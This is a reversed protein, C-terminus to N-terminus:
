KAVSQVISRSLLQTAFTLPVTLTQSQNGSIIRIPQSLSLGEEQGTIEQLIQSLDVAATGPTGAVPTQVFTPQLIIGATQSAGTDAGGLGTLSIQYETTKARQQEPTLPTQSHAPQQPQAPRYDTTFSHTLESMAQTLIDATQGEPQVIVTFLLFFISCTLISKFYPHTEFIICFFNLDLNLYRIFYHHYGILPLM